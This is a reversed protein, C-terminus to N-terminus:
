FFMKFVYHDYAVYWYIELVVRTLPKDLSEKFEELGMLDSYNVWLSVNTEDWVLVLRVFKVTYDDNKVTKVM